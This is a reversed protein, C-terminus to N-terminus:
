VEQNGDGASSYTLAVEIVGLINIVFDLVNYKDSFYDCFGCGYFRVLMEVWFCACFVTDLLDILDKEDESIDYRNFALVILNSLVLVVVFLRFTIHETMKRVIFRFKLASLDRASSQDGPVAIAYDDWSHYSPRRTVKSEIQDDVPMIAVSVASSKSAYTKKDAEEKAVAFSDVIVAVILNLSFFGGVFVLLPFFIRSFYTNTTDQYKYMFDAWVDFTIVQVSLLLAKFINDFNAAGYSYALSDEMDDISLPLDYMDPHGCYREAPCTYDGYDHVSCPRELEEDLEWTGEVPQPTLRCRYFLDGKFQRVGIVSFIFIILLLFMVVKPLESLALMIPELLKKMSTLTYALKLIRLALLVRLGRPVYLFPVCYTISIM